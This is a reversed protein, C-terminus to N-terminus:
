HADMTNDSNFYIDEMFTFGNAEGHSLLERTVLCTEM